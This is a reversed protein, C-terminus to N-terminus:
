QGTAIHAIISQGVQRAAVMVEGRMRALARQDFRNPKMGRVSARFLVRGGIEFRLAKARVPRIVAGRPGYIGTGGTLWRGLPQPWTFKVSTQNGSRRLDYRMGAAFLGTRKPAEDRLIALGREGFAIWKDLPDRTGGGALPMGAQLQVEAQLLRGEIVDLGPTVELTFQGM